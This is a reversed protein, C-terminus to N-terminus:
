RLNDRCRATPTADENLACVKYWTLGAISSSGTLAVGNNDTIIPCGSTTWGTTDPLTGRIPNTGSTGSYFCYSRSTTLPDVPIVGASFITNVLFYPTTSTEDYNGELASSIAGLDAARRTERSKSQASNYVSYAISVLIAIILIVVMLEVLTFGNRKKHKRSELLPNIM